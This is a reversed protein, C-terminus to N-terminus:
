IHILSLLMLALLLVALWGGHRVRMSPTTM